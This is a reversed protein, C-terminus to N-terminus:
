RYLQLTALIGAYYNPITKHQDDMFIMLLYSVNFTNIKM